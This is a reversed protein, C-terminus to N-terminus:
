PTTDHAYSEILADRMFLLRGQPQGGQKAHPFRDKIHRLRDPTINLIRAAEQTTVMQPAQSLQNKLRREVLIAVKKSVDDLFQAYSVSQDSFAINM